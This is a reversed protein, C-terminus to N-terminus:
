FNQMQFTKIQLRRLLRKLVLQQKQCYINSLHRFLQKLLSMVAFLLTDEFHGKWFVYPCGYKEMFHKLFRGYWEWLLVTLVSRVFSMLNYFGGLCLAIPLNKTETPPIEINLIKAQQITHFLTSYICSKDCPNLDIM